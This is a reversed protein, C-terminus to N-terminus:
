PLLMQKQEGAEGDLNKRRAAIGEFYM